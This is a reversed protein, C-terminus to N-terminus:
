EADADMDASEMMAAAADENKFLVLMREYRALGDDVEVILDEIRTGGVDRKGGSRDAALRLHLATKARIIQEILQAASKKM